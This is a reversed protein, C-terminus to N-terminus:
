FDDEEDDRLWFPLSYPKRRVKVIQRFSTPDVLPRRSLRMGIVRFRETVAQRLLWSDHEAVADSPVKVSRQRQRGEEDLYAVRKEVTRKLVYGVSTALESRQVPKFMVPKHTQCSTKLSLAEKLKSKDVGAALLHLHPQWFCEGERENVSVDVGAVGKLNSKIGGLRDLRRDLWKLLTAPNCGYLEGEDQRWADNVITILWLDGECDQLREWIRVVLRGREIRSAVHCAAPCTGVNECGRESACATLKTIRRAPKTIGLRAFRRLQSRRRSGVDDRTEFDQIGARTLAQQLALEARLSEPLLKNRPHRRM